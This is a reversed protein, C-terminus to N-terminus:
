PYQALEADVLAVVADFDADRVNISQLRQEPGMLQAKQTEAAGSAATQLAVIATKVGTLSTKAAALNAHPM